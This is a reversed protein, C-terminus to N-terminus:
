HEWLDLLSEQWTRRPTWGTARRLKNADGRSRTIGGRSGADGGEVPVFGGALRCLFTAVDALATEVGSAINFIQMQGPEIAARSLLLVIAEAIDRVDVFDRTAHLNTVPITGPDGAARLQRLRRALVAAFYHEPLGPGLINFPRVTVVRLGHERAFALALHTQALKSAAFSTLPCPPHNEGVPLCHHAVAGYEAASGFLVVRAHPAHWAVASLVALTGQVHLAYLQWPDTTRTAGACQVVWDPRSAELVAAVSTPDTLDCPLPSGGPQDRRPHVGGSAPARSTTVVQVGMQGLAECIPRGVFSHGAFVVATTM